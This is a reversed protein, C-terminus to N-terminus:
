NPKPQPIDSKKVWLGDDLSCNIDRGCKQLM